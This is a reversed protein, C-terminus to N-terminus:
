IFFNIGAEFTQLDSSSICATKEKRKKKLLHIHDRTKLSEKIHIMKLTKM